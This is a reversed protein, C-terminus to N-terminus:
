KFDPEGNNRWGEEQQEPHFPTLCQSHSRPAQFYESSVASGQSPRIRQFPEAECEYGPKWEPQSIEPYEKVAVVEGPM